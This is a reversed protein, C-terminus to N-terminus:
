SIRGSSDKNALAKRNSVDLALVSDVTSQGVRFGPQYSVSYGQKELMNLLRDILIHEIIKCLVAALATPVLNM